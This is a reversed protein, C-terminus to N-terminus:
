LSFGTAIASISTNGITGDGYQGYGGHGCGYITGDSALFLSNYVGAEIQVIGQLPNGSSDVVRTAYSAHTGTNNGNGLEGWVNRGLSWVENSSDLFLVHQNGAEIAIINSLKDTSNIMVDVPINSSSGSGGNGLAGYTNDGFAKVSGDDILLYSISEGAAAAVVFSSLYNASYGVSYGGSELVRVPYEINGSGSYGLGLQGSYTSGQAWASGDSKVYLSYSSGAAVDVADELEYYYDDSGQINTHYQPRSSSHTIYLPTSLKDLTTLSIQQNSNNGVGLVRGSSELFLVHSLGTSIKTVNGLVGNTGFEVPAAYQESTSTSGRGLQGQLNAGVGMVTGNNKLFMTFNPGSNISVIDTIPVDTNVSAFGSLLCASPTWIGQSNPGNEVGMSLAYNTNNGAAFPTGNNKLVINFDTGSALRDSITPAPIVKFTVDISVESAPMNLSYHLNMTYTTAIPNGSGDNVTFTDIQYGENPLIGIKLTEGEYFYNGYTSYDIHAGGNAGSTISPEYLGEETFTAKTTVNKNPINFTWTGDNNNTLQVDTGDSDEATVSTLSWRNEASVTLTVTDGEYGKSISSTISGGSNTHLGEISYVFETTNNISYEPQAGGYPYVHSVYLLKSDSYADTLQKDYNAGCGLISNEDNLFLTTQLGASIATINELAAGPGSFVLSAYSADIESGTGLKGTNNEGAAWVNGDNTLFVSYDRGASVASIGTLPVGPETIVQTPYYRTTNDGVGLRGDSNRGFTWVTGDSKLLICHYEGASVSVIDNSFYVEDENSYDGSSLVRVPYLAQFSQNQGVGLSGYANRGAAWVSNDSKLFFGNRGASIMQVDEFPVADGGAVSGSSLTQTFYHVTTLSGYGIGGGTGSGWVTGDNRLALSVYQGLDFGVVNTIPEDVDILMQVPYTTRGTGTTPGIAAWGSGAQTDGSFWLTNDNKLYAISGNVLMNTGAIAKVNQFDVDDEDFASGSSLVKVPAGYDGHIPQTKAEDYYDPPAPFDFTSGCGEVTGDTLLRLTISNDVAFGASQIPPFPLGVFNFTATVIANYEGTTFTYGTDNAQTVTYTGSGPDNITSGSQNVTISALEYGSNVSVTLTCTQPTSSFTDLSSVVTGGSISPDISVSRLKFNFLTAGIDVSFPKYTSDGATAIAIHVTDMDEHASILDGLLSPPNTASSPSYTHISYTSSLGSTMTANLQYAKYLMLNDTSSFPVSNGTTPDILEFSALSDDARGDVVEAYRTSEVAKYDSTEETYAKIGFTGQESSNFTYNGAGDDTITPGVTVLEFKISNGSASSANLLLDSGASISSLDQDWTIEDDSQNPYPDDTDPIGDGDRDNAPDIINISKIVDIAASYVDDGPQYAKIDTTGEIGNLSLSNGSISGLTQDTLEYFVTLGSDSSADLTLPSDSFLVSSLDQSWTIVQSGRVAGNITVNAAALNDADGPQSAVVTFTGLDLATLEKTNSNFSVVSGEGSSILYEVELGSDCTANLTIIDDISMNSLDQDWTIVPSVESDINISCSYPPMKFIIYKAEEGNLVEVRDSEQKDYFSAVGVDTLLSPLPAGYWEELDVLEFSWGAFLSGADMSEILIKIEKNMKAGGSTDGSIVGRPAGEVTKFLNYQAGVGNINIINTFYKTVNLKLEKTQEDLLSTAPQTAFLSLEGIDMILLEDKNEGGIIAKNPDSVSYTIPLGFESTATLKIIHGAKFGAPNQSWSISDYFEKFIAELTLNYPPMAFSISDQLLDISYNNYTVIWKSFKWDNSPEAFADVDDRFLYRNKFGYIKGGIDELTIYEDETKPKLEWKVVIDEGDGGTGGGTETGGNGATPRGGTWPIVDGDPAQYPIVEFDEM